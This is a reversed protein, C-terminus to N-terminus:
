TSKIKVIGIRLANFIPVFDTLFNYTAAGTPGITNSFVLFLGIINSLGWVWFNQQVIRNTIKGLIMAEPIKILDDHMLAVDSADIATDSGIAGMAFGIDSMALAAADNVGDGVMAVFNDKNITKIEEIYKIKDEPKLNAKYDSIGVSTAVRKAVTNNDGTLMIWKQIGLQISKSIADKSSEKIKDEFYIVGAFKNNISLATISYGLSELKNIEIVESEQININNQQLFYLKGAIIKIDGDKVIIGQGSIEDFDVPNKINIQRSKIYEIIPKAIPHSSNSEALALNELFAKENFDNFTKIGNVIPKGTTLTGTKDTIIIKIKALKELVDSSKILIGMKAAKAISATFALPVSVAIDDACVVLLISLVLLLNGTFFYIVLSGIFTIIIYWKTFKSVIKIIKSKKLSSKEVLDVIKALTSESEIKLCKIIIGGDENLTSSFVKDGKTKNKPLSEGTLTSENILANGEIIIGDVPIRDGNEIILLDNVKVNSIDVLEYSQDKKVKVKDPRFKLLSQVINKTRRDTWEDFIRACSLMLSIFSASKWENNLIAFSLAIVALFDITLERNKMAKIVNILVPILALYTIIPLLYSLQSIVLFLGLLIILIINLLIVMGQSLIM